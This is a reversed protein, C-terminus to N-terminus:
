KGVVVEVTDTATNGAADTATWTFSYVAGKAAVVQFTDDDIQEWRAKSSGAVGVGNFEV